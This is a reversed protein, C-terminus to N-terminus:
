SRRGVVIFRPYLRTIRGRLDNGAERPLSITMRLHLRAKPALRPLGRMMRNAPLRRSPVLVKRRGPCAYAPASAPLRRWPRSCSEVVVRLGHPDTLLRSPALVLRTTCRRVRTGRRLVWRCARVWRYGHPTTRGKPARVAHEGKPAAREALQFRMRTVPRTSRNRLTVLRQASDGPALGGIPVPPPSKRALSTKAPTFRLHGGAVALALSGGGLGAVLLLTVALRRLAGARTM